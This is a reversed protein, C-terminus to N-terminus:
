RRRISRLVSSQTAPQHWAVNKKVPLTIIPSYGLFHVPITYVPWRDIRSCNRTMDPHGVYGDRLCGGDRVVECAAEDNTVFKRNKTAKLLKINTSM